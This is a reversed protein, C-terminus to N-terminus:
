YYSIECAPLMEQLEEMLEDKDLYYDWIRLCELGRLRSIGTIDTLRKWDKDEFHPANSGITLRKVSYNEEVGDFSTNNLKTWDLTLETLSSMGNIFSLDDIPCMDIYLTEVQSLNGLFRGDYKRCVEISLKKLSSIGSLWDEEWWTVNRLRIEELNELGSASGGNIIKIYGGAMSNIDAIELRKLNPYNKLNELDLYDYGETKVHNQAETDVNIIIEECDYPFIESDVTLTRSEDESTRVFLFQTKKMEEFRQELDVAETVTTETEKKTTMVTTSAAAAETVSGEMDRTMSEFMSQAMSVAMDEAMSVAMDEAMSEAMSRVEDNAMVVGVSDSAGVDYLAENEGVSSEACGGLAFMVAAATAVLTAAARIKKEM